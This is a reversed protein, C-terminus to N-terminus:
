IHSLVSVCRLLLANLEEDNLLNKFINKIFNLFNGKLGLKSFTRIMCPHQVKISKKFNVSIITHNKNKLRNIIFKMSKQIDFWDEMGPIFIM